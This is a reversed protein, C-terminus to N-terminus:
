KKTRVTAKRRFRAAALRSNRWRRCRRENLVATDCNIIIVVVRINWSTATNCNNNQKELKDFVISESQSIRSMQRYDWFSCKEKTNEFFQILELQM